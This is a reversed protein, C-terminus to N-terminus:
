ANAAESGRRATGPRGVAEPLALLAAALVIAILTLAPMQWDWDLPSHALWVMCGAVAGAAAAPAARLAARAALGIGALFMALLALGVLGLEAATQLELSHADQAGEEFPRWRLWYVAWGGSGVGRLPEQAFARLAVRWYAYRNSSFSVLRASGQGAPQASGEKSGAVIALALGGAIVGAALWPAYRPLTLEGAPDRPALWLHALVSAASIALLAVLVIAGGLERSGASGSLSTVGKFPASVLVALVGAALVRALSRLQTRQPAVVVLTVLGAACAFLSGRSFSLYLGLLLTPAAGAAAARLWQPRTADGALRAALVFGIAALEGM